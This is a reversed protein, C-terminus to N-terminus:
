LQRAVDDTEGPMVVSGSEGVNTCVEVLRGNLLGGPEEFCSM